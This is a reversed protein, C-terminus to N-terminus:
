FYRKISNWTPLLVPVAAVYKKFAPDSGWKAQASKELIPVGSVFLLLVIIYLPSLLAWLVTVGVLSSLVTFYLGIWVMIEGLYNPHRSVRWVGQDIWSGKNKPNRSFRFKQQDAVAEIILGVAFIVVGLWSAFTVQTHHQAFGSLAALMIVFVSLGQALWFRLFTVFRERMEDFRADKGKKWVRMLLFSGLRFAWVLIMILLLRHLKTHSSQHFGAAAVVAFTVAYSIDTLKDTKFLYAPVFLLLNLGLSVLFALLFINV